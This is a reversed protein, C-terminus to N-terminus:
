ETAEKAGFLRQWLGPEYRYVTVKLFIQKEQELPPGGPVRVMAKRDFLKVILNPVEAVVTVESGFVSLVVQEAVKYLLARPSLVEAIVKQAPLVEQEGGSELRIFRLWISVKGSQFSVASLDIQEEIAKAVHRTMLDLETM